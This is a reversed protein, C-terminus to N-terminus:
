VKNSIHAILLNMHDHVHYLPSELGGRLVVVKLSAPKNKGQFGIVASLELEQEM